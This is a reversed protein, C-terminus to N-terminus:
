IADRPHLQSLQSGEQVHHRQRSEDRHYAHQESWPASILGCLSPTHPDGHHNNGPYAHRALRQGDRHAGHRGYLQSPRPDDEHHAGGM